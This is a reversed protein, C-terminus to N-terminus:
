SIELVVRFRAKGSLMREYAEQARDFPFKEILPRINAQAAFKLCDESDAGTGSPWGVIQRRQGILQLPSIKMPSVDAGVILLRGDISLADVWPTMADSNTITSLIVQAGGLRNLKDVADKQETDIYIDAGLKKAFDAKEAGRALAVTRYGMKHAFQVALHGLGGLGLVAVTDPPMAGAHRLANFTTIGACLLPAAEASSLNDPIPACANEPFVAYNAYGGDRNIGPIELNQCTIFDGKLCSQCHGCYGGCWGVGVRDGTRFRRADEGVAEVVGVIEHGPVLPYKLGPFTGEIAFSDSHCVGCAEIRLLVQKPGPEPQSRNVITLGSKPKTVEAARATKTKSDPSEKIKSTM